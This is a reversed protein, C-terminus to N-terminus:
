AVAVVVVQLFGIKPIQLTAPMQALAALAAQWQTQLRYAL